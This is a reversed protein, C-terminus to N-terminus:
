QSKDPYKSKSIENESLTELSQLWKTLLGNMQVREEETLATIINHQNEVHESLIQEILSFGKKTLAVVSSRADEPNTRREILDQAELRDLRNTMTGSTVMTWKILESPSLQYPSGARRLTAIVDFSASNLGYKSYVTSLQTSVLNGLRKLRGIMGMPYVDLDPREQRWQELIKEVQDM